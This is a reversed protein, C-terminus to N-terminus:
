IGKFDGCWACCRVCLHSIASPILAIHVTIENTWLPRDSAEACAVCQRLRPLAPGHLQMSHHWFSHRVIHAAEVAALPPEWYWAGRWCSLLTSAELDSGM